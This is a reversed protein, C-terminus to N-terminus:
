TNEHFVKEIIEFRESLLELFGKPIPCLSLWTEGGVCPIAKNEKKSVQVYQKIDLHKAIIGLNKIGMLLPSVQQWEGYWYLYSRLHNDIGLFTLLCCDQYLDEDKGIVLHVLKSMKAVNELSLGYYLDTCVIRKKDLSLDNYVIDIKKYRNITFSNGFEDFWRKHLFLKDNREEFVYDYPKLRCSKIIFELGDIETYSQTLRIHKELKAHLWEISPSRM